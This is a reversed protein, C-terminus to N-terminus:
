FDKRKYVIISIFYSIIFFLVSVFLFSVAFLQDANEKEGMFTSVLLYISGFLGITFILSIMRTLETKDNGLIYTLPYTTSATCFMIGMGWLMYKLNVGEVSPLFNILFVIALTVLISFLLSLLFTLYKSQIIQHREVPLIREYHNWGSISEQRLADFAISSLVPIPLLIAINLALSKKTIILVAVAIITIFLSLKIGEKVSYFSNLILGKM